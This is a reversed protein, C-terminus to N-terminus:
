LAAGRRAPPSAMRQLHTAGRRASWARAHGRMHGQSVHGGCAAGRGGCGTQGGHAAGVGDRASISHLALNIARGRRRAAARVGGGAAGRGCSPNCQRRRRTTTLAKGHGKSDSGASEESSASTV